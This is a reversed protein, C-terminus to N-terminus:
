GALRRHGVYGAVALALTPAWLWFPFIVVTKLTDVLSLDSGPFQSFLMSVGATGLIAAVVFGPVAAAALPVPRGALIPMWRPFVEGWPRILGITLISGVAAAGGLLLGWVRLGPDITGPSLQQWPTLWTLRLLVYPLPCAAAILTFVTRHTRVFVAMRAGGDSGSVQGWAVAIWAAATALFLAPALQTLAAPGVSQLIQAALHPVAASEDFVGMIVGWAAAGAVLILLVPRLARYRRLGQVILLILGAPVSLAVLYGALMILRSGQYGTVLLLAFGLGAIAAVPRVARARRSIVGVGLTVTSVAVLLTAAASPSLFRLVVLVEAALPHTAPALLWWLGLAATVTSGGLALLLRAPMRGRPPRADTAADALSPTTSM